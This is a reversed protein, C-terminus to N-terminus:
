SISSRPRGHWRQLGGSEIPPLKSGLRLSRCARRLLVIATSTDADGAFPRCPTSATRFGARTALTRWRASVDGADTGDTRSDRSRRQTGATRRSARRNCFWRLMFPRRSPFASVLQRSNGRTDNHKAGRLTGRLASHLLPGRGADHDPEILSSGQVAPRSPGPIHFPHPRQERSELLVLCSVRVRPSGSRRCAAM